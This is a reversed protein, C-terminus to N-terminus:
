KESFINFGDKGNDKVKYMALDAKKILETYSDADEPFRSIGISSTIKYDIGEITYQM